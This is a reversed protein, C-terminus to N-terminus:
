VGAIISAPLLTLGLMANYIGLGTGKKKSDLLDSVFAKQIGDTCASYLGYMAFLGIIVRIDRTYGFGFYVLAYVLYGFVLVRERGVKDSLSGIPISFSVSLINFILYVLPIYAVKIGTVTFCIGFRAGRAGIFHDNAGFM